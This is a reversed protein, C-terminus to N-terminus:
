AVLPFPFRSAFIADCVESEKWSHKKADKMWELKEYEVTDMGPLNRDIDFQTYPNFHSTEEEEKQCLMPAVTSNDRYGNYENKRNINSSQAGNQKNKRAKIFELM